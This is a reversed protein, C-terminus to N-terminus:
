IAQRLLEAFRAGDDIVIRIELVFCPISFKFRALKVADKATTVLSQAGRDQAERSLQDIDSQTYKYHDPFTRTLLPTLNEGRLQEFFSQPNGVGCFAAIPPLCQEVNKGSFSRIGSTVMRSTFLPKDAAVRQIQETITNVDSIHDTRTMVICGARWLGSAPERLRGLPLLNENGWPNTADVAVIDLDRGLQLHQFGDDLVFIEAGLNEIAWRGAAFRDRNSIVAAIGLLSKALLFPEDGAEHEGALLEVGDSVVVQTKVNARGYGRTLVCIKKGRALEPSSSQRALVRCVYDVLPTKGTGGTTLNGVSIVPVPLTAKSLWERRYATLRARTIVSYVASLPPLIISQFVSM